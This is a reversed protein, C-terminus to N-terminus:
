AIFLNRQKLVDEVYQFSSLIDAKGDKIAITHEFHASPKNDSTKITWGDKGHVINRKGMNIM